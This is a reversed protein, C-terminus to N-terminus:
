QSHQCNPPANPDEAELVKQGGGIGELASFPGCPNPVIWVHMMQATPLKDGRACSGDAGTVAMVRRQPAGDVIREPTFCLNDHIHWQTLTGGVDPLDKDATGRPVIYMVAELVRGNPTPRYMLSEPKNPDLVTGDNIWAWNILHENGTVGDGITRFGAAEAKASDAWQPLKAKADALLRDAAARQEPTVAEPKGPAAQHHSAAAADTTAGGHSPGAATVVQGHDHTAPAAVAAPVALAAAALGVLGFGAFGARGSPWSPRAARALLVQGAGVVLLVEFATTVADTFGFAEAEQFGDIFAIGSTRSLLYGGVVVTNALAGVSLMLRTPWAPALAAWSIQFIAIGIYVTAAVGHGRHASVMTANLLGAALSLVALTPVLTTSGLEGASRQSRAAPDGSRDIVLAM